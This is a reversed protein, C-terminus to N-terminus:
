EQIKNGRERIPVLKPVLKKTDKPEIDPGFRPPHKPTYMQHDIEASDGM